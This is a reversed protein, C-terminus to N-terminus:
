LGQRAGRRGQNERCLRARREEEQEIFLKDAHTSLIVIALGPLSANIERAADIGNLVPMTINMVVVDPKLRQAQDVAAAGDRAEGCVEFRTHSELIQRVSKRIGPHDDAVLVRLRRDHVPQASTRLTCLPVLHHYPPLVGCSWVACITNTLFFSGIQLPM